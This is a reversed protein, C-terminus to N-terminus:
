AAKKRRAFPRRNRMQESRTAWRCNSPEYNGNNNPFRDISHADSPRRGMDALFKEYSYRWRDCVRIGRGGYYPYIRQNKDYCRKNMGKWIRYEASQAKAEGHKTFLAVVRKSARKRHECGCSITDGVLLARGRVTKETGCDCRVNWIRGWKDAHSLSLVVLQGFRQGSLESKRGKM